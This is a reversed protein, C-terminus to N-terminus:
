EEIFPIKRDKFFLRAAEDWEIEIQRDLTFINLSTGSICHIANNEYRINMYLGNIQDVTFDLQANRLFEEVETPKLQLTIQFSEPLEKGKILSYCIPKLVKWYSLEEIRNEELERESYYGQRIHGDITFANFTIISAERVLWDDFTDGVFLQVTFNKLDEMKLAVM